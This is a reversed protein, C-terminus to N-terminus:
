ESKRSRAFLQERLINVNNISCTYVKLLEIVTSNVYDPQTQVPKYIKLIPPLHNEIRMLIGFTEDAFM